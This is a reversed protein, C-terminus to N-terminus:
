RVILRLPSRGAAASRGDRGQKLLKIEHVTDETPDFPTFEGGDAHQFRWVNQREPIHARLGRDVNKHDGPRVNRGKRM